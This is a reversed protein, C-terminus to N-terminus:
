GGFVIFKARYTILTALVRPSGSRRAHIDIRKIGNHLDAPTQCNTACDGVQCTVIRTLAYASGQYPDMTIGSPGTLDLDPHCADNLSELQELESRALQMAIAVERADLAAQLYAQLLLSLPVSLLGTLGIALILEILSVGRRSM